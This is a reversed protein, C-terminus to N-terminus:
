KIIVSIKDMHELLKSIHFVIKWYTNTTNMKLRNEIDSLIKKTTEYLVKDSYASKIFFDGMFKSQINTIPVREWHIKIEIYDNYDIHNHLKGKKIITKNVFENYINETLTKNEITIDNEDIILINLNHTYTTM